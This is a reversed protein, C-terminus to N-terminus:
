EYEKVGDKRMERIRKMGKARKMEKFGEEEDGRIM